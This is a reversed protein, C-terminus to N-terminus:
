GDLLEELLDDVKNINSPPTQNIAPYEYPKAELTIDKSSSARTGCGGGYRAYEEDFWEWFESPAELVRSRGPNASMLAAAIRVINQSDYLSPLVLTGFPMVFRVPFLFFGKELHELIEPNDCSIDGDLYRIIDGDSDVVIAKNVMRM